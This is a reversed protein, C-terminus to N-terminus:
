GAVIAELMRFRSSAVEAAVAAANDVAAGNWGLAKVAAMLQEGELTRQAAGRATAIGGEAIGENSGSAAGSLFFRSSDTKAVTEFMAVRRASSATSLTRSARRSCPSLVCFARLPTDASNLATGDLSAAPACLAAACRASAACCDSCLATMSALATGPRSASPTRLAAAFCASIVWCATRWAAASIFAAGTRRTSPTRVAVTFCNLLARAVADCCKSEACWATRPAAASACAIGNVIISWARLMVESCAASALDAAACTFICLFSSDGWSRPKWGCM